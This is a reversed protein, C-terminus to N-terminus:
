RGEKNRTLYRQVMSIALIFLFFIVSIASAYAIDQERFGKQVMHFAVTSTAGNPGGNTMVFVQTFLQFAAITITILIFVTVNRLGPLTIYRFKQWPNAGDIDAAEYLQDPIGQLGALFLIMQMGVGQWVSMIIIAWMATNPNGLWDIPGANGFSLTKLFQNMLGVNKEYLFTWVISIVVM